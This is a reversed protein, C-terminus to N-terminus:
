TPRAEGTESVAQVSCRPHQLLFTYAHSAFYDTVNLEPLPRMAVLRMGKTFHEDDTHQTFEESRLPPDHDVCELYWHTSV